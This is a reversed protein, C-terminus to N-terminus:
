LNSFKFYNNKLSNFYRKKITREAKLTISLFVDEEIKYTDIRSITGKYDKEALRNFSYPINLNNQVYFVTYENPNRVAFRKYEIEDLITDNLAIRNKYNPITDGLGVAGINKSSIELSPLIKLSDLDVTFPTYEKKNFLFMITFEDKMKFDEHDFIELLTKEYPHQARDDYSNPAFQFSHQGAFAERTVLGTVGMRYSRVDGKVEHIVAFHNNGSEDTIHPQRLYWSGTEFLTDGDFTIFCKPEHSLATEKYGAM